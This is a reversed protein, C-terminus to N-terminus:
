KSSVASYAECISPKNLLNSIGGASVSEASYIELATWDFHVTKKQRPSFQSLIIARIPMSNKIFKLFYPPSEM